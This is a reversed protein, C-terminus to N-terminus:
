DSRALLWVSGILLFGGSLREVWVVRKETLWNGVSGAALAYAGDFVLGVVMFSTGFIVLQLSVSQSQDVFQPLFAGFFFLAKPNSWIVLFGQLVLAQSNRVPSNDTSSALTKGNARLLQLGLWALYLAGLIRIIDFLWSMNAVLVSYGAVLAMLMCLLGIQTGLINLLGARSGDRLSNAIIITVTPGPVIVIAASALVFLWLNQPDIM